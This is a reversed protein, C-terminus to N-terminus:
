RGGTKTTTTGTATGTRTGTTTGAPTTRAPTTQAPAKNTPVTTTGTPATTTGTPATTTKAVPTQTVATKSTTGAKATTGAKKSTAKSATKVATSPKASPKAVVAPVTPKPVQVPGPIYVLNGLRIGGLPLPAGRPLFIPIGGPIMGLAAARAALVAPDDLGDGKSTYTQIEQAVAAEQSQLAHLKFADQASATNLLLLAVLGGALLVLLLAVFPARRAKIPSPVLSLMSRRPARAPHARAPSQPSAEPLPVASM